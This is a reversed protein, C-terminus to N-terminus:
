LLKALEVKPPFCLKNKRLKLTLYTKSLLEDLKKRIKRKNLPHAGYGYWDEKQYDPHKGAALCVDIMIHFSHWECGAIFEKESKAKRARINIFYDRKLAKKINTYFKSPKIGTPSDHWMQHFDLVNTGLKFPIGFKKKIKLTLKKKKIKM